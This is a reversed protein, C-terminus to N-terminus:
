KQPYCRDFHAQGVDDFLEAGQSPYHSCHCYYKCLLDFTIEVLYEWARNAAVDYLGQCPVGIPSLYDDYVAISDLEGGHQKFMLTAIDYARFFDFLFNESSDILEATSDLTSVTTTM